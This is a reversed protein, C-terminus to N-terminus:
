CAGFENETVECLERVWGREVLVQALKDKGLYCAASLYNDNSGEKEVCAVAAISELYSIAEKSANTEPALGEVGWLKIVRSSDKGLPGLNGDVEFTISDIVTTVKGGTLRPPKEDPRPETPQLEHTPDCASLAVLLVVVGLDALKTM